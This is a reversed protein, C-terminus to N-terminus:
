LKITSMSKILNHVRESENDNMSKSIILDTVGAAELALIKEKVYNKSGAITWQDAGKGCNEFLFDKAEQDTDRILISTAVMQKNNKIYDTKKIYDIHMNLAALHTFNFSNCMERTKDSHGGMVIEPMYWKKSIKLFKEVWEHTYPLRSEPTSIKDGFMVINEISKEDEHIDGSVINLMLKNPFSDNYSRCIMAMYEPSIAYTRIAIMFKLKLDNNAALLSKTLFDYNNSHYTLLLSYYGADDLESSLAKISDITSM